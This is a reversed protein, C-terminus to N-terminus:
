NRAVHYRVAQNVTKNTQESAGDTEPHWATSMKLKVGTLKHLAKWFQSVLLKDRDSIIERPLGNKCYWHNFFLLALDPTSLKTTMPVIQIDSGLCNTFTIISNFGQDMPLPGIFDIAVSDGREDPIPLLHLPGAKKVTRSKNAQCEPCSPIYTAELDTRM